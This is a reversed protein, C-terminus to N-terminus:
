VLPRSARGDGVVRGGVSERRCLDQRQHVLVSGVEVVEELRQRCRDPEALAQEVTGTCQASRVEGDAGVVLLLAPAPEGELLQQEVLQRELLPTAVACRVRCGRGKGFRALQGGTPEVM